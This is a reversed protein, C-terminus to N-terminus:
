ERVFDSARTPIDLVYVFGESSGVFVWGLESVLAPSTMDFDPTDLGYEIFTDWVSVRLIADLERDFARLEGKDSSVVLALVDGDVHHLVPQTGLGALGEVESTFPNDRPVFGEQTFTNSGSDYVLYHLGQSTNVYIETDTYEGARLLENGTEVVLLNQVGANPSLINVWTQTTGTIGTVSIAGDSRGFFARRVVEDGVDILSGTVDAFVLPTTITANTVVTGAGLAAEAGTASDRFVLIESATPVWIFVDSQFEMHIPHGVATIGPLRWREVGTAVDLAVISDASTYLVVTSGAPTEYVYPPHVSVGVDRWSASGGDEWLLAPEYVNAGTRRIEEIAYARGIDTAVFLRAGGDATEQGAMHTVQEGEPLTWTWRTGGTSTTYCQISAGSSPNNVAVHLRVGVVEPPVAVVDGEALVLDDATSCAALAPHTRLYFQTYVTHYGQENPSYVPYALAASSLGDLDGESEGEELVELHEAAELKLRVDVSDGISEVGVPRMKDMSFRITIKRIVFPDIDAGGTISTILDGLKSPQNRQLYRLALEVHESSHSTGAGQDAVSLSLPTNGLNLVGVSVVGWIFSTIDTGMICSSLSFGFPTLEDLVPITDVGSAIARGPDEVFVLWTGNAVVALRVSVEGTLDTGYATLEYIGRTLKADPWQVGPRSVEGASADLPPAWETGLRGSRESILEKFFVQVEFPAVDGTGSARIVPLVTVRDGELAVGDPILRYDASSGTREIEIEIDILEVTAASQAGVGFSWLLLLIALGGAWQCANRLYTM